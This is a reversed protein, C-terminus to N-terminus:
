SVFPLFGVTLTTSDALMPNYSLIKFKKLMILLYKASISEKIKAKQISMQNIIIRHM